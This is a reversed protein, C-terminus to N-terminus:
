RRGDGQRLERWQAATLRRARMINADWSREAAAGYFLTAGSSDRDPMLFPTVHGHWEAPDDAREVLMGKWRWRFGDTSTAYNTGARSEALMILHNGLRSVHIGGADHDCVPEDSARRWRV